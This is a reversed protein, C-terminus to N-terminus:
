NSDEAPTYQELAERLMRASDLQKNEHRAECYPGCFVEHVIEPLPSRSECVSCRSGKLYRLAVFHLDSVLQDLRHNARPHEAVLSGLSRVAALAAQVFQTEPESM